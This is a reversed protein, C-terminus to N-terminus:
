AALEYLGRTFAALSSRPLFVLQKGHRKCFQKVRNVADHSVCDVPCLVADARCLISGLRQRGDGEGGDHHLFRGNRREVLARFGACQRDRGGVYLICRNCLDFDPCFEEHDKCTACEPALLKELAAELANRESQLEAVRGQEHLHRDGKDLALRKWERAGAEAREARARAEVLLAAYDEVQARLREMAEGNELARLRAEAQELKHQADTSEALRANLSRISHM